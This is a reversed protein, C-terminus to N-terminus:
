KHPAPAVIRMTGGTQELSGGLVAALVKGVDSAGGRDFTANVTRSALTSDITLDIGYWRRVDAAVQAVSADNFVLRGTTWAMDDGSVAAQEVRVGGDPAVTARDGALLTAARVGKSEVAVSGETVVIRSGDGADSHVSFVTGVDRFEATSTHVVFPHSADHVVAFRAEGQLHVDRTGSGFRDGLTLQSGPGLLVDTGDPLKLSDLKGVASAFQKPANATTTTPTASARWLLGVGAVVLIAAAARLPTSQWRSPRVTRPVVVLPRIPTESRAVSMDRRALVSTLAAETEATTPMAPEPMRVADDLAQLLNAHAPQVDLVRRMAAREDPTGEGAVYRAVADWDPAAAADPFLNQDTM